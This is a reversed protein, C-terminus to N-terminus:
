EGFTNTIIDPGKSDNVNQQSRVFVASMYPQQKITDDTKPKPVFEQNRKHKHRCRYFLIFTGFVCLLVTLVFLISILGTM